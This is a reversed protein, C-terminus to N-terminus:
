GGGYQQELSMVDNVYQQTDAYMGNQEVSSLGQYYGAAAMSDSGTSNLLSRLLLVGGRVNDWASAPALPESPTLTSNIWSWTGPLIQMVGVAHDDSVEDNNWGSEQWGIAEALAPPVGNENAIESIESGDVYQDTPYPPGDPNGEAPAGVPQGQAGATTGSTSESVYETSGGAPLQLAAGALLIGNPDLGNLAALEAVTTGDRAAIASLTDGPEVVYSGGSSTDATEGTADSGTTDSTSTTTAVSPSGAETYATQPPIELIQGTVLESQTSLGNAAALASVSLGDIAAVSTLTEGPAVVHPYDAAATAPLSLTLACACVLGLTRVHM